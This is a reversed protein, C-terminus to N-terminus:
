SYNKEFSCKDPLIIDLAKNIESKIINFEEVNCDENLSIMQWKHNRIGEAYEQYNNINVLCMKGLTKRPYFDGECLQWYRILYQTVDTHGRFHNLSGRHLKEPELEWLKMLVSKKMASPMHPDYFGPFDYWYKLSKTRELLEGYDKHFWKDLSNEQVKRKDFYKNIIMMNNVQTYRAMNSISGFESPVIINEVAEDCVQNNLFYYEEEIPQLPIMDDNFIIFNESLGEIRHYNMEITNSNFTPLYEEPIYDKHKVIELKPHNINLFEPLHGWTIFLIKHVWPMYKEIARFWYQLNDWSEFRINSDSEEEPYYKKQSREKAKKWEVDSDDVWPVIIDINTNM